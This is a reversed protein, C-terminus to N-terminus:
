LFWACLMLIVFNCFRFVVCIADFQISFFLFCKAFALLLALFAVMAPAVSRGLLLTSLCEERVRGCQKAEGARECARHSCPVFGFRIERNPTEQTSSKGEIESYRRHRM